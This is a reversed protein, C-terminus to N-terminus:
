VGRQRRDANDAKNRRGAISYNETYLENSPLEEATALKNASLRSSLRKQRLHDSVAQSSALYGNQSAYTVFGNRAPSAAQLAQDLGGNLLAFSRVVDIPGNENLYNALNLDNGKLGELPMQLLLAMGSLSAGVINTLTLSTGNQLNVIYIQGGLNNVTYATEEDLGLNAIPPTGAIPTGTVLSSEGTQLDIVYINANGNGTAYATSFNELALGEISPAGPSGVSTPTVLQYAGTELNVAYINNNNYGVVYAMTDSAIAIDTLGPGGSITALASSAGTLLNVSYVTSNDYGVAYAWTNNAVAVGYLDESPGIPSTTVQTYTQKILDVAYLNSDNGGLVYATSRNLLALDAIGIGGSITVVPSYAGTQLNFSYVTDSLFDGTYGPGSSSIGAYLESFSSCLTLLCFIRSCLAM